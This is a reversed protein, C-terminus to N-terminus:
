QHSWYEYVRELDDKWVSEMNESDIPVGRGIRFYGGGPIGTGKRVVVAPLVPRGAAAEEDGIENLLQGFLFSHYHVYATTLRAALESYTITERKRAVEIMHVRMEERLAKRDAESLNKPRM